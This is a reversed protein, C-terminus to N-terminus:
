FQLRVGIQLERPNFTANPTLFTGTGERTGGLNAFNTEDFLNFVDVLLTVDFRKKIPIEYRLSLDFRHFDPNEAGRLKGNFSTSVGIDSPNTPSYSGAPLPARNGNDLFASNDFLTVQDGTLFRYLWSVTLGGNDRWSTKPVLWTGSVAVNTDRNWNVPIGSNRPDNMNLALPEGLVEGTDFNYGTETRSQFYATATGGGGGETNGSSDAFTVSVRGGFRGDFRKRLSLQVADYDTAGANVFTTISSMNVQQGNLISINPRGGQASSSPNLDATVLIDRNESHILDIAASIGHRFEHEAGISLTDVYAQKRNPNDVTPRTNLIAGAGGELMATLVDRLGNIDTVGNAQAIDFLLQQNSGADPARLIFGQTLNAADLFFRAHFGLQFRDYFRGYGGRVVTKGRDFPDWAFGLRPALNDDDTIDEEDYRVGLNLTLRDNVRWDDQVFLGLTKNDPIPATLGGM